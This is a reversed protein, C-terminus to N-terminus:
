MANISNSGSNQENVASQYTGNWNKVTTAVLEEEKLVGPRFAPLSPALM